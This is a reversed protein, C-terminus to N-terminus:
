RRTLTGTISGIPGTMSYAATGDGHLTLTSPQNDDMCGAGSVLHARLTISTSTAATLTETRQCTIGGRHGTNSATGLPTGVAGPHLTLLIDYTALGDTATGRWTGTFADPLATHASAQETVEPAGASTTVDSDATAVAATEPATTEAGTTTASPGTTASRFTLVTSIAAVAVLVLVLATIGLATRRRSPDRQPRVPEPTNPPPPAPQRAPTPANPPATTVTAAPVPASDLDLLMVAQRSISELIPAPLRVAPPGLSDIRTLAPRNGPQKDLCAAALARVTDPVGDLRAPEQMVRWLMTISDGSGFPGRGTAAYVLVGGLAFIDAAPGVPSRGSIHEPAMYGPSGIVQGTGTLSTGDDVARAIGFDILRPGDVTLLVNSPKLDRHVVGAAHVDLLARALGSALPALAYEPLPGFTEVAEGLSLGAVYGTALWPRDADADADLVPVTHAGTVRRAATVERRFRTRFEPDGSLDPRVVKVAVTRGGANRGLYVRGMGGAGLVGLIRYPGISAPDGPELPRM